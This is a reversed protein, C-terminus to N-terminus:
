AVGLVDAVVRGVVEAVAPVVANGLAKLRHRDEGRPVPQRVRCVAPSVDLEAPFEDVVRRVGSEPPAQLARWARVDDPGPPWLPRDRGDPLYRPSLQEFREPGREVQRRWSDPYALGVGVQDASRGNPRATRRGELGHSVSDAVSEVSAREVQARRALQVEGGEPIRFRRCGADALPEGLHGPQSSRRGTGAPATDRVQERSSDPVRWAVVFVRDRRHPAGVAAAPICDWTADYGSEALAGLVQDLGRTVLAAVNELVVVRPELARVVRLVDWWLGSRAGDLGAGNGAVSLNQCPFGAALVDCPELRGTRHVTGDPTAWLREARRLDHISRDADPWHKALISRPFEDYEVQWVVRSDPLARELGLGLGGIGACLEGITIM